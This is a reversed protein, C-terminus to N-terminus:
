LQVLLTIVFQTRILTAREIIEHMQESTLNTMLRIEELLNWQVKDYGM